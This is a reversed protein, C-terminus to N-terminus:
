FVSLILVRGISRRCERGLGGGGIQLPDPTAALCWITYTCRNFFPSGFSVHSSVLSLFTNSIRRMRIVFLAAIQTPSVEKTCDIQLGVDIGSQWGFLLKANALPGLSGSANGHNLLSPVL